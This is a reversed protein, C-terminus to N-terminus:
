GEETIKILHCSQSFVSEEKKKKPSLQLRLNLVTNVLSPLLVDM